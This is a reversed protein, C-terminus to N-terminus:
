STAAAGSLAATVRELAALSQEAAPLKVAKEQVVSFAGADVMSRLAAVESAFAAAESDLEAAAVSTAAHAVAACLQFIARGNEKRVRPCANHSWPRLADLIATRYERAAEGTESTWRDALRGLAIQALAQTRACICPTGDRTLM